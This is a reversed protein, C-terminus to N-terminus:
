ILSGGIEQLGEAVNGVQLVHFSEPAAEDGNARLREALDPAAVVLVLVPLDLEKLQRVLEQRPEDWDLLVCICGCVESAHQLVLDRLARFPKERCPQV